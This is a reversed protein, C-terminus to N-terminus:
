HLVSTAATYKIEYKCNHQAGSHVVSSSYGKWSSRNCDHLCDYLDQCQTDLEIKKNIKRIKIEMVLGKRENM